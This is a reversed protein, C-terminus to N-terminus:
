HKQIRVTYRRNNAQVEVLYTSAPLTSLNVERGLHSIIKRGFLDFVGTIEAPGRLQLLGTTPNPYLSIGLRALEQVDSLVEITVERRLTDRCSGTAAVYSVTYTGTEAYTHMPDMAVSTSDDGFDWFYSDAGPSMSTFTATATDVSFAFDAGPTFNVRVPITAVSDTGVADTLTLTVLYQGTDAYVVTPSTATSNSPFAGPFDWRVGIFTGTSRSTITLEYPACGSADKVDIRAAAFEPVVIDKTTVVVDGCNANLLTVTVSYDGGATYTHPLEFVNTDIVTGDGFDFRIADFNRAGEVTATVFEDVETISGATAVATPFTTITVTDGPYSEGNRFLAQIVTYTGGISDPLNIDLDRGIVTFDISEQTPHDILWSVADAGSSRDLVRVTQGGCVTDMALEIGGFPVILDFDHRGGREGTGAPEDDEDCENSNLRLGNGGAFAPP